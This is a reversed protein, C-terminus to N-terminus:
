NVQWPLSYWNVLFLLCFNVLSFTGQSKKSKWEFIPLIQWKLKKKLQHLIVFWTFYCLKSFIIKTLSLITERNLIDKPAFTNPTNLYNTCIQNHGHGVTTTAAMEATRSVVGLEKQMRTNTNGYLYRIHITTYTHIYGPPHTNMYMYTYTYAYM